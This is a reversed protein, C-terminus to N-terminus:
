SAKKEEPCGMMRAFSDALKDSDENSMMESDTPHPQVALSATDTILLRPIDGLSKELMTLTNSMPDVVTGGDGMSLAMSPATLMTELDTKIKPSIRSLLNVRAIRKDNEEKLKADRLSNTAKSNAELETRLKQNEAYMSLAVGKLPDPLNNIDDISLAMYMPQQEQQVLPNPQATQNQQPKPQIPQNKIQGPKAEDPNLNRGTLEHIKTMAATYLNRKFSGEDGAKECHVGLASLLDCLLEEMKVDGKPDGYPELDVKGDNTPDGDDPTTGEGAPKEGAEPEFEGGEEPMPPKDGSAKDGKPPPTKGKKPPPFEGFAVGSMMSFAIPYRPALQGSGKLKGLRGARSLFFGDSGVQASKADKDFVVDTAMSLAAAVSGFPAQKTIRPRTTLAIHSIVNNWQRGNGDTFSNIWPSTWRITKPLKKYVEDDQVDLVAFLKDDKIKYEKTWGSNNLLKDKPTMPHANFDHEFPVPVTLGSSLMLNGQEQWYKTLDPTVDLKRPLGTKEDSYWYTGPAIVEKEILM